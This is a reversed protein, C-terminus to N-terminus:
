NNTFLNFNWIESTDLMSATDLNGIQISQNSRDSETQLIPKPRTSLGMQKLLRNLHQPTIKIGLEAQLHQSLKQATWHKFPYQYNKNPVNIARPCTTVLQKLRQLYQEDILSPRGIPNSKWYHAQNTTVMMIWHRATAQCCGLEQCIETQTKGADALLMIQLRQSQKDTLEQQLSVQLLKRQFVTLYKGAAKCQNDELTPHHKPTM